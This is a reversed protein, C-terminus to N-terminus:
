RLSFYFGVCRFVGIISFRLLVNFNLCYPVLFSWEVVDYIWWDM